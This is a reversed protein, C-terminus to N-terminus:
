WLWPKRLLGGRDSEGLGAPVTIAPGSAAPLFSAIVSSGGSFQGLTSIGTDRSLGTPGAIGWAFAVNMQPSNGGADQVMTPTVLAAGSDTMSTIITTATGNGAWTANLVILDGGGADSAGNVATQTSTGAGIGTSDVPSSLAGGSFEALLSRFASASPSTFVPATEGAACNPKYWVSCWRFSGGSVVALTWGPAATAIPDTASSDNTSVWAMLLSKVTTPAGFAPSLNIALAGTAVNAYGM